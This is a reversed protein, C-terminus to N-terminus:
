AKIDKIFESLAANVKKPQKWCAWIGPIKLFTCTRSKRCTCKLVDSMPAAIDESGIIFLVPPCSTTLVFSRDPRNMMATYYQQLAPVSFKNGQEIQADVKEPHRKKLPQGLCIPTVTKLFAYAGYEEMLAIAKQRSQKKENSDAFATSHVLGFGSLNEKNKWCFEFYYIGM